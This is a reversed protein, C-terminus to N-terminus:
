HVRHALVKFVFINHLSRKLMVLTMSSDKLYNPLSNWASPGAHSFTRRGYTSLKPRPVDRQGKAASRLQSRREIASVPRCLDIMYKPAITSYIITNNKLDGSHDELDSPCM